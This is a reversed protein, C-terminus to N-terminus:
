YRGLQDKDQRILESQALRLLPSLIAVMQFNVLWFDLLEPLLKLVFSVNVPVISEAQDRWCFSAVIAPKAIRPSSRATLAHEFCDEFGASTPTELGVAVDAGAIVADAVIASVLAVGGAGV